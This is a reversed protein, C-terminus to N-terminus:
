NRIKVAFQGISQLACRSGGVICGQLGNNFNKLKNNRFYILPDVYSSLPPLFITAIIRNIRYIGDFIRRKNPFRGMDKGNLKINLKSKNNSFSNHLHLASLPHKEM